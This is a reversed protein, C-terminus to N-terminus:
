CERGDPKKAEACERNRIGLIGKAKQVTIETRGECSGDSVLDELPLGKWLWQQVRCM